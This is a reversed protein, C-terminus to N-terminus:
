AAWVDSWSGTLGGKTYEMEKNEFFNTVVDSGLIETMWPFPNDKIFYEQKLGLALLRRDCIFRIYEKTGERTIGKLNDNAATFAMDIFADELSVMDRAIQYLHSKFEDTWVEPNEEITTRTLWIMGDTHLTEDKISSTVITSMGNMVGFRAANLLMAFSSFLQLGETFGSFVALAKIQDAVNGTKFQSIYDHKAAMEDYEKFAKYEIEDMGIADLLASYADAHISEMAAFTTLMMRIEENKFFPAYVDLYAQGVDVDAQTFFRFLQSLFHRADQGGNPVLELAELKNHYDHVDQHLKVEDSIWHM